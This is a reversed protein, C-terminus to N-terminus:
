PACDPVLQRARQRARVYFLHVGRSVHRGCPTPDIELDEDRLGLGLRFYERAPRSQAAGQGVAPGALHHRRHLAGSEHGQRGTSAWIRLVNATNM